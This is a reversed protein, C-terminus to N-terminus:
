HQGLYLNMYYFRCQSKYPINLFLTYTNAAQLPPIFAKDLAVHKLEQNLHVALFCEVYFTVLKVRVNVLDDM